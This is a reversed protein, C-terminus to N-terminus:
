AHRITYDEAVVSNRNKQMFPLLSARQLLLHLQQLSLIVPQPPMYITQLIVGSRNLMLSALLEM